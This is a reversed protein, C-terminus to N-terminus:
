FCSEPDLDINMQRGQFSSSAVAAGGGRFFASLGEARGLRCICRLFRAREWESKFELACSKPPRRDRSDLAAAAATHPPPSKVNSKSHISGHNPSSSAASTSSEHLIALYHNECIDDDGHTSFASLASNGVLLAQISQLPMM